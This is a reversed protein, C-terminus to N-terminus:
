DYLEKLKDAVIKKIVESGEGYKFYRELASQIAESIVEESIKEIEAEFPYNAIANELKEKIMREVDRNYSEFAHLVQHKMGEIEIRVRPLPYVM